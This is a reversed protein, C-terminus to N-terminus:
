GSCCVNNSSKGQGGFFVKPYHEDAVRAFSVYALIEMPKVFVMIVLLVLTGM